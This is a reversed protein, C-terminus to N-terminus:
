ILRLKQMNAKVKRRGASRSAMRRLEAGDARKSAEAPMTASASAAAPQAVAGEGSTVPEIAVSVLGRVSASHRRSIFGTALALGSVFPGIVLFSLFM